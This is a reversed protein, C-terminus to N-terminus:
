KKVFIVIEFDYFKEYNGFGYFSKIEERALKVSSEAFYILWCLFKCVRGGAKEQGDM